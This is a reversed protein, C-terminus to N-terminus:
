RPEESKDASPRGLLRQLQRERAATLVRKGNEVQSIFAQSTGFAEAFKAQGWGLLERTRRLETM